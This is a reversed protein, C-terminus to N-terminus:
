WSIVGCTVLMATRRMYGFHMVALIQTPRWADRSSRQEPDRRDTSSPACISGRSPGGTDDGSGAIISETSCGADLEVRATVSMGNIPLGVTGVWM